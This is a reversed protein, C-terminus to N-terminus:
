VHLRAFDPAPTTVIPTVETSGLSPTPPLVRVRDLGMYIDSRASMASPICIYPAAALMSITCELYM